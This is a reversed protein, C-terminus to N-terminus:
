KTVLVVCYSVARGRPPKIRAPIASFSMLEATKGPRCPARQHVYDCGLGHRELLRHRMFELNVLRTDFVRTHQRGHQPRAGASTEPPVSECM